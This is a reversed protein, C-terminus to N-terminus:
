LDKQFKQMRNMERQDKLKEKMDELRGAINFFSAALPDDVHTKEAPGSGKLQQHKEDRIAIFQRHREQRYAELLEFVTQQDMRDRIIGYRGEKAGKFFLVYDEISLQDEQTTMVLDYSTEFIQDASMPRILNLSNSFQTLLATLIDHISDFGYVHTLHPIRSYMSISLVKDFLVTTGNM